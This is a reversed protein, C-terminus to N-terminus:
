LAPAHGTSDPRRHGWPGGRGGGVAEPPPTLPGRRWAAGSRAPPPLCPAVARPRLTPATPLADPGPRRHGPAGRMGLLKVYISGGASDLPKRTSLCAYSISAPM